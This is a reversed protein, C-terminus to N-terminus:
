RRPLWSFKLYGARAIDSRAPAAGSEPHAADLLNQVTVSLAFDRGIRRSYNVDVATYAPVAPRPLEDIRRLMLDLSHREGFDHSSRLLLQYEPDNGLASPGVPDTSGPKVGLDERLTTLGASMRWRETGEWTGWAEIGYISGEIMNEIFAPAPQGSRLKGWDYHFGTTSLTFRSGLRARYGVEVVEAVESVFYPGGRIIFGSPPPLIVDRDLRSPARVARSLGTWLLRTESINWALRASPLSETGTYDNNELKVGLTLELRDGLELGTQAFLNAWELDKEPPVFGFLFGNDIDDSGRRYGGGWLLDHAGFAVAHRLEVDFIDAEPNFLFADERASHDFYSQLRLESGGDLRRTWRALMNAGAVEIRGLDFPATGGRPESRGSYADGQLTLSGSALETDTRFGIQAREWADRVPTGDARETNELEILKAYVRFRGDDGFSGGHRFAAGSEQNGAGAIALKGQTDGASRTIVNIIGNVANAGWLTAGPGSIVEIRDVDELLVDQMDWFVGSFLPTYVTRGDILVLLKNAITSNFGRASIAYQAADVRAVLLNPALRLAEPLSTVGARAIDDRTIV